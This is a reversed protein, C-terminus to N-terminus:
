NITALYRGDTINKYFIFFLFSGPTFQCRSVKLETEITM